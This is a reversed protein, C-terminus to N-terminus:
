ARRASVMAWTTALTQRIRLDPESLNSLDAALDDGPWQELVTWGLHDLLRELDWPTVYNMGLSTDLFRRWASGYIPSTAGPIGTYIRGGPALASEFRQLARSLDPVFQLTMRAHIAQFREGRKLADSLDGVRWDVSLARKQAHARAREIMAPSVDAAVVEIGREAFALAFQGSGCGADYVRDSPKLQLRDIIRELDVARDPAVANEESMSDWWDSREDWNNRVRELWRERDAAHATM